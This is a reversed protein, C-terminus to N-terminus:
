SEVSATDVLGELRAREDDSFRRSRREAADWAVLVTRGEAAASGDPLVIAHEVVMSSRGISVPWVVIDVYEHDKRVERRYDLEVGALVFAFHGLRRFFEARGEELLEHYV